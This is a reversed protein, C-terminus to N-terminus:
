CTTATTGWNLLVASLRLHPWACLVARRWAPAIRGTRVPACRWAAHGFALLWAGWFSWKQWDGRHMLDEPLLRNAVLMALTAVLMGTVTTV